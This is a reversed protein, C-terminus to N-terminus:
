PDFLNLPHWNVKKHSQYRIDCYSLMKCTPLIENGSIMRIEGRLHKLAQIDSIYDRTM